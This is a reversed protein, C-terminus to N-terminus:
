RVKSVDLKRVGAAVASGAVEQLRDWDIREERDCSPCRMRWSQRLGSRDASVRLPEVTGRDEDVDAVGGVVDAVLLRRVKHSDQGTCVFSVVPLRRARPQRRSM